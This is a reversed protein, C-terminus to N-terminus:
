LLMDTRVQRKPLELGDMSKEADSLFGRSFVPQLDKKVYLSKGHDRILKVASYGFSEWDIANSRTDHNWRGVKYADVHPLSSEIIALSQAPIIVPEISAWTKIGNKHLTKLMDLREDPLAAGPEWEISPANEAFTLTAGVKIRGEPWSRFLDLDELCRHGGKTLIAVSCSSDHLVNLAYRTRRYETEASCYPDSMFCLLIQRTANEAEKALASLDRPRPTESWAGRMINGCYCYKCHHDCGGSYVNLALPSYERAKGKPVYILSM